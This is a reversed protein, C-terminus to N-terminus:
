LVRGLIVGCGVGLQKKYYMCGTCFVCYKVELSKCESFHHIYNKRRMKKEEREEMSLDSVLYWPHLFLLSSLCLYAMSETSLMEVAMMLPLLQPLQLENNLFWPITPKTLGLLCLSVSMCALDSDWRCISQM